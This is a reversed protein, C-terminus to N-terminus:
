GVLKGLEKNKSSDTERALTSLETTDLILGVRGDGLIAGGSIGKINTMEEGLSKTVVQQQGMLQDVLLACRRDGDGVIVLLGETPDQITNPIDFLRYLRFIPILQNQFMVMEGKEAVTFIADKAPRFSMHINIIPIIYREDGIKVLMGDIIAITLPFVMTFTTSKGPVTSIDIRGRLEEINKKVVDLGVGRGSVNTIQEATSFGPAFILNYVESDSMSKDNEIIGKEVAKKFIKERELGRGDDQVKILVNGGSHFASMILTGIRSKGKKEREDAPEIGHDVANRIMHVLPDKILEVMKRDIETEEGQLILNVKKGTKTATDRVLRSMKQFTGSLPIMRMSMSLDQLDRVIKGAHIVKRSFEAQTENVVMNDQAIMSHAIVLEGIMEILGDLRETRVRVFNDKAGSGHDITSPLNTEREVPQTAVPKSVTPSVPASAPKVAAAPKQVPAAQPAEPKPASASESSGGTEATKLEKLLEDYGAPKMLPSGGLASEVSQVLLKVMDISRLSLDANENECTIEGDRIRSFFNEALHAFHSCLELQLFGSTGKITHFARFVINIAENDTPNNELQLLASEAEELYENSEAIFENIIDLDFDTPLEYQEQMQTEDDDAAPAPKKKKEPVTGELAELSEGILTNLEVMEDDTANENKVIVTLKEIVLKINDVVLGPISTDDKVKLLSDLIQQLETTDTPSLQIFLAAVDNLILESQQNKILKETESLYPSAEPNRGLAIWLQHGSTIISNKIKGDDESNLATAIDELCSKGKNIFVLPDTINKTYVDQLGELCMLFIAILEVFDEPVQSKITELDIGVTVISQQDDPDIKGLQGACESIQNILTQELRVIDM